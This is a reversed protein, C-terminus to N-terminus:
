ESLEAVTQRQSACRSRSTKKPIAFARPRTPLTSPPLSPPLSADFQRCFQSHRTPRIKLRPSSLRPPRPLGPWALCPLPLSPCNREATSQERTPPRTGPGLENRPAPHDISHTHVAACTQATQAALTRTLSRALAQASSASGASQRCPAPLTTADAVTCHPTKAQEASWRHRRQSKRSRIISREANHCRSKHSSASRPASGTIQSTSIKTCKGAACQLKFKLKGEVRGIAGGQGRDRTWNPMGSTWEMHGESNENQTTPSRQCTLAIGTINEGRLNNKFRAPESDLPVISGLHPLSLHM